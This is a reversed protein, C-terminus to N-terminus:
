TLKSVFSKSKVSSFCSLCAMKHPHSNGKWTFHAEGPVTLRAELQAHGQLILLTDRADWVEFFVLLTESTMLHVDCVCVSKFILIELSSSSDGEESM